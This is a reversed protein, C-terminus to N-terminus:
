SLVGVNTVKKLALVLLKSNLSLFFHFPNFTNRKHLLFLSNLVNQLPNCYCFFELLARIWYMRQLERKRVSWLATRSHPLDPPSRLPVDTFTLPVELTIFPQSPQTRAARELIKAMSFTNYRQWFTACVKRPCYEFQAANKRCHQSRKCAAILSYVNICVAARGAVIPM